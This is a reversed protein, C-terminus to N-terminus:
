EDDSRGTFRPDGTMLQFISTGCIPFNMLDPTLQEPAMETVDGWADHICAATADDTGFAAAINAVGGVPDSRDFEFGGPTDATSTGAPIVAETTSQPEAAIESSSSACAGLGLAAVLTVCVWWRAPEAPM